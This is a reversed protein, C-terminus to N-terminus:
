GNNWIVHEQFEPCEGYLEEIVPKIKSEIYEPTLSNWHDGRNNWPFLTTAYIGIYEYGYQDHASCIYREGIVDAILVGIGNNGCDDEYDYLFEDLSDHDIPYYNEDTFWKFVEKHNDIFALVKDNSPTTNPLEIGYMVDNWEHWSM